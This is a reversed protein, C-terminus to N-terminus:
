SNIIVEELEMITKVDYDNSAIFKGFAEESLREYTLEHEKEAEEKVCEEVKANYDTFYRNIERREEVTFPSKDGEEQWQQAKKQMTDFDEPKLREQAEKVFDEFSTVVPKMQRIAKIVRFKDADEMKTLKADNITRYAKVIELTKM